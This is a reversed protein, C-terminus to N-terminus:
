LLIMDEPPAIKKLNSKNKIIYLKKFFSILQTSKIKFALLYRGQM